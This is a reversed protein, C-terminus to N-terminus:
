KPPSEPLPTADWIHLEDGCAAILKAGDSGFSVKTFESPGTFSLLEYGSSTDWLKITRDGSASALRRGDPNFALGYVDGTHGRFQRIEEGTKSWLRIDGRASGTGLYKGDPTFALSEVDTSNEIPRRAELTAPDLDTLSRLRIRLSGFEGPATTRITSVHQGTRMDWGWVASWTACVLLTGDPSYAIAKVRAPHDGLTRAVKGTHADWITVKESCAVSAVHQGDPSFAVAGTDVGGPPSAGGKEKLTLLVKRTSVDWVKTAQDQGVTALRRGDPCFAVNHVRGDHGKLTYETKGSQADGILVEGTDTGVEVSQNTIALQKGDRSVAVGGIDFPFKVVNVYKPASEADWVKVTGDDAGSIIRRSDATFDLDSIYGAHGRYTFHERGTKADLVRIIGDLGGIVLLRSDPSYNWASINKHQIAWKQRGAEVDWVTLGRSSLGALLQGNPSYQVNRWLPLGPLELSRLKSQHLVDWINVTQDDSASALRTGDPSFAVSRVIKKHGNLSAVPAGTQVDWIRVSYPEHDSASALRRGDGSFELIEIGSIRGKLTLIEQGTALDWVKITKDKGATALRGRDRTRAYCSIEDSHAKPGWLVKQTQLDVVGVNKQESKFVIGRDGRDFGILESAGNDDKISCIEKGSEFDWVRIVGNDADAAVLRDDGSLEVHSVSSGIHGSFTHLETQCLRNLYHWEFGPPDPQGAVFRHQHLLERARGIGSPTNWASQALNIHAAYLTRRLDEAKQKLQHNADDVQNRRSEAVQSALDAERKNAIAIDWQALAEREAQRARIAQWLTDVVGVLLVAAFAATTILARRNKRAFKRLRYSASPPCAEVPEDELYHEIDRALDSASGYRRTRDKELAKMVIWDLEGRILKMLGAPETKRQASIMALAHGSHSLRMSPMEPEEERIMALVQVLEAERLRKRELPTTGTLLEYLLVGLSYIDSRTDVGLASMEAQEPSMYEFTGVMMGFQTFLTRETLRQETAKAIGFDIVKPVPKGDYLTVLINSPKIDRHIIGKQHAHQIAQCVPVALMLRERPTLRNEDCYRTIPVGHVLEMVFYPRGTDTSGADLVRAINFHDMLALAQREAEFRAIVQKTDMGPKIIKLAVRRRVPHEQEAMYVVGMGGEGIQQLLKYPGIRSGPGETIPSPPQTAADRLPSNDLPLASSQGPVDIQHLLASELFDGAEDYARLLADVKERLDPAGVCAQDLYAKRDVLSALEHAHDFIARATLLQKGM